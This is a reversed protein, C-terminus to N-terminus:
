KVLVKKGGIVYIGAPLGNSAAGAKVNARVRVGSITYVDVPTNNSIIAANAIGSIMDKALTIQADGTETTTVYNFYGTNAGISRFYDATENDIVTANGSNLVVKANATIKTPAIVGTLAGNETTKGEAAYEIEALSGAETILAIETADATSPKFVFPMGAEIVDSATLAKLELTYVGDTEKQGLATYVDGQDTPAYIAIPLTVIQNVNATVNWATSSVFDEESVEVWKISSNDTGNASSWAVMNEGQGQFNVYESEGVIINFGGGTSIGQLGLEVPEASLTIAGNNTAQENMYFGTGVNQLVITGDAISVLKWLYNLKSAVEIENESAQEASKLSTSTSNNVAYIAANLARTNGEDTTMGLLKYYKGAEPMIVSNKFAAVAAELKQVGAQIQSLTMASGDTPITAQVEEVATQLAAYVTEDYYGLDTGVANAYDTVVAQADTIAEELIAVDPYAAKFADYAAQLEAITADTAAGAMYETAAKDIATKLAASITADVSEFQGSATTSYVADGFYRIEDLTFFPYGTSETAGNATKIVDMRVFKSATPLEMGIYGARNAKEEGDILMSYPYDLSYDGVYTWASTTDNSAYIRIQTPANNINNHRKGYKIVLNQVAEGLDALLYHYAGAGTNYSSHFYTTLDNDILAAIGGGDGSEISNASLQTEDTVLGPEDFLGDATAAESTYVRGRNYLESSEALLSALKDNLQNQAVKDAIANAIETAETFAFLCGTGKSASWKVMNYSGDIHYMCQASTINFLGAQNADNPAVYTLTLPVTPQETCPIQSSTSANEGAYTSTNLNQLYWTGDGVAVAKWLYAADSATASAADAPASYGNTAHLGTSNAYVYANSSRKNDIFYYKGDELTVIAADAAAKATQLATLAAEADEDSGGNTVLNVATQYATSLTNYADAPVQGPNSGAEYYQLENEFESALYADLKAVGGLEHAEYILWANTDPYPSIFGCGIQGIYIATAKTYGQVGSQFEDEALIYATECDTITTTMRGTEDGDVPNLCTFDFAKSKDSTFGIYSGEEAGDVNMSSSDDYGSISLHAVYQGKSVNYLRYTPYGDVESGTAEIKFICRATINSSSSAPTLYTNAGYACTSPVQLVVTTGNAAAAAIDTIEDGQEYQANDDAAQVSGLGVIAFLCAFLYRLKKM